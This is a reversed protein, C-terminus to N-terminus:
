GRYPTKAIEEGAFLNVSGMTDMSEDVRTIQGGEARVFLIYELSYPGESSRLKANYIFRVASHADDGLENLIDVTCEPYYFSGWVRENFAMVAEKGEYPGAIRGLSAQLSWIINDAYLARMAEVDGFAEALQRALTKAM